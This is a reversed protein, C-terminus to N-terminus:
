CLGNKPSSVQAQNKPTYNIHVSNSNSNFLPRVIEVELMEVQPSESNQLFMLCNSSYIIYYKSVWRGKNDM